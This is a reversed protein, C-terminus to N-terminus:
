VKYVKDMLAGCGVNYSASESSCQEGASIKISDLEGQQLGVNSKDKYSEDMKRTVVLSHM